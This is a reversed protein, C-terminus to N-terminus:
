NLKLETGKKGGKKGNLFLRMFAVLAPFREVSARREVSVDPDVGAVFREDALEAPFTEVLFTFCLSLVTIVSSTGRIEPSRKNKSNFFFGTNKLDMTFRTKM